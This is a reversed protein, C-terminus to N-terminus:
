QCQDIQAQQLNGCAIRWQGMFVRISRELLQRLRTRHQEGAQVKQQRHHHQDPAQHDLPQRGAQRCEPARHHQHDDQEGLPRQQRHQALVAGVLVAGEHIADDIQALAQDGTRAIHDADTDGCRCRADDDARYRLSSDTQHQGIQDLQQRHAVQQQHQQERGEEAQDEAHAQRGGGVVDDHGAQQRRHDHRQPLLITQDHRQDRHVQEDEVEPDHGVDRWRHAQCRESGRRHGLAVRDLSTDGGEVVAQARRSQREQEDEVGVQQQDVHVEPVAHQDKDHRGDGHQDEGGAGLAVEQHAAAPIFAQQQQQHGEGQEARSEPHVDDM